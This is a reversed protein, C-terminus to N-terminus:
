NEKLSSEINLILFAIVENLFTESQLDGNLVTNEGGEEYNLVFSIALAAEKPWQPHPPSPGYGILDRPPGLSM